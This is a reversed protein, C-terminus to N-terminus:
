ASEQEAQSLDIQGSILKPLLFDRQKKLNENKSILKWCLKVMPEVQDNWECQLDYPPRIVQFKRFDKLIIRPIAVGSVCQKMRSKVHPSRLCYSLWHPKIQESPRLMAISSLLAMKIDKEVVFSHKLYSGDKAILIDNRKVVSDQRKLETYDEESIQRCKSLNFGFDHMDKVSAMPVGLEVSKPSKHAGDTIKTCVEELNVIEWGEPILGLPSEVMKCQDHGPFRFKVFWERYLSQAMEELIAIRRNNNEILNDYSQLREVILQQEDEPPLSITMKKLNAITYASQSSGIISRKLEGMGEPSELWYKLYTSNLGDFKRFWTLNGDKFYFRDSPRVIYTSGLTGVSTLLMDGTVPVGHKQKIEQYKEESIFLETSVSLAGKYKETVEKGRFFPVGQDLYDRAFIRKSSTIECLQSIQVPVRKM